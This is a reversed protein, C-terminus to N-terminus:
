RTQLVEEITERVLDAPVRQDTVPEGRRALLVWRVEGGVAKKDHGLRRLVAAPQVPPLPHLGLRDLLHNQWERDAASLGVM